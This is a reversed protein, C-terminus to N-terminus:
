FFDSAIRLTCALSNPIHLVSIVFAVCIQGSLSKWFFLSPDTPYHRREEMIGAKAKVNMKYYSFSQSCTDDSNRVHRIKIKENIKRGDGNNNNNKTM